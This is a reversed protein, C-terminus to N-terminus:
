KYIYSLSVKSEKESSIATATTSMADLNLNQRQGEIFDIQKKIQEKLPCIQYVNKYIKNAASLHGVLRAVDAIGIDALYDRIETNPSVVGKKFTNFGEKSKIFLQEAERYLQLAQEIKIQALYYLADPFNPDIDLAKKCYAIATDYQKKLMFARILNMLLELERGFPVQKNCLEEAKQLIPIAEDVKGLSLTERGYFLWWLPNEKDEDVMEKLLAVNRELKKKDKMIAPDYGDHFVRIKVDKKMFKGHYMRGDELVIQEHIKGWYRLGRNMPFMRAMDYNISRRGNIINEQGIRLLPIYDEYSQSFIAAIERVSNIDESNLYEDADIWLVWDSNIHKLGANRAAAFDNVWEFEVIKVSPFSKVINMTNDTSGTDIVVVEDVAPLISTICREICREENKVLIAAAVTVKPLKLLDAIEESFNSQKASYDLKKIADIWGGQPDLLEAREFVKKAEHKFNLHYLSEGLFVWAQPSFPFKKLLSLSREKATTYRRNLLDEKVMELHNTLYDM